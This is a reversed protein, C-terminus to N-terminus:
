APSRARARDRQREADGDRDAQEEAAIGALRAALSRGMSARRWSYVAWRVHASHSCRVSVPLLQQAGRREASSRCSSSARTRGRRPRRRRQRQREAAPTTSRRRAHEDADLRLLGQAAAAGRGTRRRRHPRTGTCPPAPRSCGPSPAPPPPAPPLGLAARACRDRCPRRLPCRRRRRRRRGDAGDLLDVAALDVDSWPRRRRDRHRGGLRVVTVPRGLLALDGVELGPVADHDTAPPRGVRAARHRRRDTVGLARGHSRRLAPTPHVRASARSSTTSSSGFMRSSSEALRRKAPKSTISRRRRGPPAAPRGLSIRGSRTTSSTISGSRSPKSTTRGAARAVARRIGTSKRVARSAVSSM